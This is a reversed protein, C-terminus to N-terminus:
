EKTDDGFVSDWWSEDEEKKETVNIGMKKRIQNIDWGTLNALTQAETEQRKVLEKKYHKGEDCTIKGTFPHRLIYRGQYNERNPTDQFTLDEPFKARGYRVHLRTIYVNNQNGDLWFVGAKKLEEPSLPDAACPDCWSMDWAYEVFVVNKGEKEYTRQFMSKYFDAFEKKVFVPIEVNSPIKVTRYNAVEARGKPSLVYVLMDQEGDANIMGLRIPLMFKPSEFAMQIPRLFKNGTKEYEKLNVKAVFFKMNTKIYPQLLESAGQPIRYGNQTLWTELGTSEQASLILIDYEGVTFQAEIKVGLASDGRAKGGVAGEQKATASMPMPVPRPACPDEDFYEVLRPASFADLREVIKNEGIHVQEKKLVVPVPVVIAFDKIEGQFDNVMTMVTRNEQRAIVVQSAKNFLKADAKAVFFGCFSWGSSASLSLLAITAMLVFQRTRM